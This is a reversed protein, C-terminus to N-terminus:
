TLLFLLKSNWRMVMSKKTIEQWEVVYQITYVICLRLCQSYDISYDCFFSHEPTKHIFKILM